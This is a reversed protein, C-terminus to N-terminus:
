VNEGPNSVSPKPIGASSESHSCIYDLITEALHQADAVPLSYRVTEGEVTLGVQMVGDSPPLTHRWTAIKSM